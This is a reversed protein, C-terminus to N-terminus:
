DLVDCATTAEANDTTQKGISSIFIHSDHWQIFVLCLCLSILAVFIKVLAFTMLIFDIASLPNPDAWIASAMPDVGPLTRHMHLLIFILSPRVFPEPQLALGRIIELTESALKRSSTGSPRLLSACIATRFARPPSGGHTRGADVVVDGCM